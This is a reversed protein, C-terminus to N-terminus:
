HIENKGKEQIPTISNQIKYSSLSNPINPNYPELVLMDKKSPLCRFNNIHNRYYDYIGRNDLERLSQLPRGMSKALMAELIISNTNLTLVKNAGPMKEYKGAYFGKKPDYNHKVYNFVKKSYPTDFLFHMGIAAKTSVTRFENYDEGEQNITKWPEDDTYITNFLFYPDRDINDETVATLQGTRKYREEQVKYINHIYRGSENDDIGYEFGLYWFPESEIFNSYFKRTDTPIKIGYVDVEKVFKYRRAEKGTFKWLNYGRALYEEYGTLAEHVIRLKGKTFIGGYLDGEISFTRCYNFRLLLKEVEPALTPECQEVLNLSSLFRALDAASWGIGDEKEKNGYDVMKASNTNYAKNPLENNFLPLKQMATLFKNMMNEYKKASIINFKKAALLAYMANAWDWTAASPYKYAANFLGTKKNFNTEIYKWAIRAMMLDEGTPMCHIKCVDIVKTTKCKLISLNQEATINTDKVDRVDRFTYINPQWVKVLILLLLLLSLLIALIILYKSYNKTEKDKKM